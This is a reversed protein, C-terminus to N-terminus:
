ARGPRKRDCLLKWHSDGGELCQVGVTAPPGKVEDLEGRVVAEDAPALVVLREAAEAADGRQDTAQRGTEDPLVRPGVRRVHGEHLGEAARGGAPDTWCAMPAMSFASRSTLARARPM